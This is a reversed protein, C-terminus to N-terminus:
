RKSNMLTFSGAISSKKGEGNIQTGQYTGEISSSFTLDIDFAFTAYTYTDYYPVYVKKTVTLYYSAKNNVMVSYSYTPPYKGYDIFDSSTVLVGSTTLHEAVLYIGGNSKKLTLAKKIIQEPAFGKGGDVEDEEGSDSSCSCLMLICLQLVYFVKKM